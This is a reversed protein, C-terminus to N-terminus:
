AATIPVVKYFPVNSHDTWEYGLSKMALGVKIRNSHNIEVSPYDKQMYKLMMKSNMSKAAEGEHPKRFCIEVMEAIDKQELYNQNLEQIRAVESNDFWYPTKAVTLEYVVQAYLQGYDIEGANDIYQGDPITLCIYRRSGTADTLPHPNNTTAVFSAFRPRDEQSAGYIPRGNVKSKSLTQKLAAHQSRRIADLEDLNVLLNNTLAMEKDFKNSLNLHDLHYERLFTPLLRRLFTTKGCGQAGILTPVCENGHLMDMQLWHAVVSRLWIALFNHQETSLGPLRSFLRAVHNQGDWQPLHELYHQIPNYLDIEESNVYELLDSKSGGEEFVGERKAQITISNLAQQTLARYESVTGDEQKKAFEVKGNLVNHRFAYHENLFLEVGLLNETLNTENIVKETEKTLSSM